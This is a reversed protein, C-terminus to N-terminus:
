ILDEPRVVEAALDDPLPAAGVAVGFLPAALMPTDVLRDKEVRLPGDPRPAGDVGLVVFLIEVREVREDLGLGTTSVPEAIQSRRIGAAVGAEDPMAALRVFPAVPGVRALVQLLHQGFSSNM